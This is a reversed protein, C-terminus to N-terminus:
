AARRVEQKGHARVAMAKLQRVQTEVWRKRPVAMSNELVSLLADFHAQGYKADMGRLLGLMDTKGSHYAELAKRITLWPEDGCLYVPTTKFMEPYRHMGSLARLQMENLM